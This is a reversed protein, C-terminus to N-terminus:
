VQTSSLCRWQRGHQGKELLMLLGVGNSLGFLYKSRRAKRKWFVFSVIWKFVAMFSFSGMVSPKKVVVQREPAMGKYLHQAIEKLLVLQAKDTRMTIIAQRMSERDAELAQLRLYLKKVEPDGVDVQNLSGRPTTLYDEYIGVAPKSEHFGNYTAGNHISDITYVRDSMDDGVESANDMKRLNSYDDSQSVHEKKFSSTYRPSENVQPMGMFFSSDNSFKRSHRPRRPSQGVIVKELVNKTGFFDGDLQNYSSSRELQSIRNGLNVVHDRNRPTEGFPYKEIDAIDNDQDLPGQAENLNCRLPPYDYMPSECQAEYEVTNQSCSQQGREGDAEAETLGYSLMRHKYAQIECTLSQIAQERKYLLDEYAVLEQQDHAMKEEAFRKFQRAEMQIEAKERQLRLIMSMAENAASSSANREEELETYLDQIAEKQSSVMERLANCENEVEVRIVSFNDLGVIAFPSNSDLEDYKRKVSRIWTTSPGTTSLSCSCPCNCCKVLDLSSPLAESDM